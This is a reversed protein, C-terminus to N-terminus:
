GNLYRERSAEPMKALATEYALGTLKELHAFEGLELGNGIVAPMNAITPPVEIPTKREKSLKKDPSSVVPTPLQLSISLHARAADIAQQPTLDASMGNEGMRNITEQLKLMATPDKSFVENEPKALFVAAYKDFQENYRQGIVTSRHADKAIIQEQAVRDADIKAQLMREQRELVSKQRDYAGQAIDGSDFQEALENLQASVTELEATNTGINEALSILQTTDVEPLDSNDIVAEAAAIQEPTPQAAAAATAADDGASQAAAIEEPSLESSDDEDSEIAAIEAATLSAREEDSLKDPNVPTDNGADIIAQEAATLGTEEVEEGVNQEQNEITM